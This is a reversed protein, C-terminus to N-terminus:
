APFRQIYYVAYKKTLKTVIIFIQQLTLLSSVNQIYSYMTSHVSLVVYYRYM